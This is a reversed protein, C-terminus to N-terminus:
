WKIARLSALFEHLQGLATENLGNRQQRHVSRRNRGLISEQGGGALTPCWLQEGSCGLLSWPKAKGLCQYGSVCAKHSINGQL